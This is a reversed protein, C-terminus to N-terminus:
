VLGDLAFVSSEIIYEKFFGLLDINLNLCFTPNILYFPKQSNKTSLSMENNCTDSLPNRCFLYLLYLDFTQKNFNSSRSTRNKNNKNNSLSISSYLKQFLIFSNDAGVLYM